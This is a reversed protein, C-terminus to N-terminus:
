IKYSLRELAAPLKRNVILDTIRRANTKIRDYSKVHIMDVWEKPVNGSGSIAGALMAGRGAITDSDRGINTGGVAAKRVDGKSIALMAFALGLLELPDICHYYLCSEYLERRVALVDDYKSAVEVCKSIYDYPTDIERVDFTRMKNRPAVDLAAKIVSDATSGLSLAEATAAALIAAAVVDLGRQNLYSIATGDIYANAPDGAHYVGVPEMCMVSSGTVMNWHGCIRPDMGGRLLDYTNRICLFYMDKDMLEVWKAGYDRATAPLGDRAVYAEYLMMAIQNDDESELKSPDLVTHVGGPYKEDIEIYSRGEVPSGMANGIAGALICGLVKDYLASEGSECKANAVKTVRAAVHGDNKLKKEVVGTMQLMPRAIREIVATPKIGIGGTGYLAGVVAGAVSARIEAYNRANMLRIIKSPESEYRKLLLLTHGIPNQGRYDRFGRNNASIFRDLFADEGMGDCERLMSNIEYYVDKCYKLAMETIKKVLDSATCGDTLAFAVAAAALAAWESAPARQIVSALEIGDIYAYEPDGAHYIGVIPMATSVNGDPCAGIGNVRPQMGERLREIASYIDLFWFTKSGTVATDSLLEAAYDEPTVRGQKRIYASAMVNIFPSLSSYWTNNVPEEIREAWNIEGSIAQRLKEADNASDGIRPMRLMGLEAGTVAGYICGTIKEKLDLVVM